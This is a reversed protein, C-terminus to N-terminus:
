DSSLLINYYPLGPINLNQLTLVDVCEPLKSGLKSTPNSYEKSEAKQINKIKDCFTDDKNYYYNGTHCRSNM